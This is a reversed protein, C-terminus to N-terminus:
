LSISRSRDHSKYSSLYSYSSASTAGLRMHLREFDTRKISFLSSRLSLHSPHHRHNWGSTFGSVHVSLEYTNRVQLSYIAELTFCPPPGSFRSDHLGINFLFTLSIEYDDIPFPVHCHHCQWNLGCTALELHMCTASRIIYQLFVTVRPYTFSHSIPIHDIIMSHARESMMRVPSPAPKRLASRLNNSAITM